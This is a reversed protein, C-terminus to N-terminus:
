LVASMIGPDLTRTGGKGGIMEPVEAVGGARVIAVAPSKRSALDCVKESAAILNGIDAASYHTTVHAAKHGLLLQRDEFQVGAARLRYGYTHKLDHVRVSRFGAPCPRGMEREYREAARRRAAKWGSTYIKTVGKSELTFVLERHEGRCGAIVSRAIRKLVV